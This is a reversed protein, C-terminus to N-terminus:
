AQPIPRRARALLAALAVLGAIIVIGAICRPEPEVPPPPFPAPTPTPTVGPAPTPAPTPTPTPTSTQGMTPKPTPTACSENACTHNRIDGCECPVPVCRHGSCAFEDFCDSDSCCEYPTFTHNAALGCGTFRVCTSNRCTSDNACESDSTCGICSHNLCRTTAPCMTDNCCAYPVWRHADFQGCDGSANIIECHQTAGSCYEDLQCDVDRSCFRYARCTNRLCRQGTRCASDNCCQFDVWQHNRVEGCTHKVITNCQRFTCNEDEACDDNTNCESSVCHYDACGKGAPCDRDVTCEVYPAFTFYVRADIYNCLGSDANEVYLTEDIGTVKLRFLSPVERTQGESIDSVRVETGNWNTIIFTASETVPCAGCRRSSGTGTCSAFGPMIGLSYARVDMWLTGMPVRVSKGEYVPGESIPSLFSGGQILPILLLLAFLALRPNM